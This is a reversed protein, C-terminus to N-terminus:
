EGEHGAANHRLQLMCGGEKKGTSNEDAGDAGGIMFDDDDPASKAAAADISGRSASASAKRCLASTANRARKGAHISQGDDFPVESPLASPADAEAGGVSGSGHHAGM